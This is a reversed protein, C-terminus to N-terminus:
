GGEINVYRPELALLKAIDGGNFAALAAKAVGEYQTGWVDLYGTRIIYRKGEKKLAATRGPKELMFEAIKRRDIYWFREGNPLRVPPGDDGRRWEGWNAYDWTSADTYDIKIQHTQLWEPWPPDSVIWDYAKNM